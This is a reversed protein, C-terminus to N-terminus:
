RQVCPYLRRSHGQIWRDCDICPVVSALLSTCRVALHVIYCYPSRKDFSFGVWFPNKHATFTVVSRQSCPDAGVHGPPSHSLVQPPRAGHM